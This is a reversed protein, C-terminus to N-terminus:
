YHKSLLENRFQEYAEPTPLLRMHDEGAWYAEFVQSLQERSM